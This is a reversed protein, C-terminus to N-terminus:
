SAAEPAQLLALARELQQPLGAALTLSETEVFCGGPGAEISTEVRLEAAGTVEDLLARHRALIAADDPHLRVTIRGAPAVVTLAERIVHALTDPRVSLERRLIREAVAVALEPLTAELQRQLELRTAALREAAETLAASASRLAPGEQELARCLGLELGKEEAAAAIDRAQEHARAIIAAAIRQGENVSSLGAERAAPAPGVPRRLEPLALPRVARDSPITTVPIGAASKDVSRSSSM